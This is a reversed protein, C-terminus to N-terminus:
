SRCWRMLWRIEHGPRYVIEYEYGLLKAVWNQQKPTGIRQEMFYRLSRQDIQIFFKRGLLYPRWTHVAQLIALM